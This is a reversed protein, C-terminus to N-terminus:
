VARKPRRQLYAVISSEPILHMKGPKHSKIIGRGCKQTVADASLHLLPAAEQTTYTKEAYDQLGQSHTQNM